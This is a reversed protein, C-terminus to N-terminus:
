VSLGTLFLLMVLLVGSGDRVWLGTLFLMLLEFV